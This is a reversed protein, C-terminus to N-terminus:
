RVGMRRVVARRHVTSVALTGAYAAAFGAVLTTAAYGVASLAGTDQGLLASEVAFSSYTTYGGLLGTGVGLRVRRRWGDDPGLVALVELLLGLALAGTLNASFTAWPWHGPAAPFASGLGSRMATGLAGGAAILLLTRGRWSRPRPGIDPDAARRSARM